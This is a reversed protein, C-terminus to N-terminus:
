SYPQFACKQFVMISGIETEICLWDPGASGTMVQWVTSKGFPSAYTSHDRSATRPSQMATLWASEWVAAM